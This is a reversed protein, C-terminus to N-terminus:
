MGAPFLSLLTIPEIISILVSSQRLAESATDLKARSEVPVSPGSHLFKLARVSSDLSHLVAVSRSRNFHTLM